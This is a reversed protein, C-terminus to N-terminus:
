FIDNKNEIFPIKVEIWVEGEKIRGRRLLPLILSPSTHISTSIGKISFL